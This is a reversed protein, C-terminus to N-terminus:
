HTRRQSTDKNKMETNLLEIDSGKNQKKVGGKKRGAKAMNSM